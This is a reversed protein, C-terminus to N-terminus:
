LLTLKRSVDLSCIKNYADSTELLLIVLQNRLKNGIKVFQLELHGGKVFVPLALVMQETGQVFVNSM